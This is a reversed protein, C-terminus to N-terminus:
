RSSTRMASVLKPTLIGESQFETTKRATLDQFTPFDITMTVAPVTIKIRYKKVNQANMYPVAGNKTPGFKWCIRIKTNINNCYFLCLGNLNPFVKHKM